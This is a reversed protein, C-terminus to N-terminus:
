SDGGIMSNTANARHRLMRNLRPEQAVFKELKKCKNLELALTVLYQLLFYDLNELLPGFLLLQQTKWFLELLWWVKPTVKSLFNKFIAWDPWVTWHAWTMFGITAPLVHRSSFLILNYVSLSRIDFVPISIQSTSAAATTKSM